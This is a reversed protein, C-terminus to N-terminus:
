GRIENRLKNLSTVIDGPNRAIISTALNVLSSVCGIVSSINVLTKIKENAEEIVDKLAVVPAALADLSLGVAATTVENSLCLLTQCLEYLTDYEARSIKHQHQNYNDDMYRKISHEAARLADAVTRAEESNIPLLM